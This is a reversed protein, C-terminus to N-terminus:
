KNLIFRAAGSRSFNCHDGPVTIMKSSFRKLKAMIKFKKSGEYFGYGDEVGVSIFYKSKKPAKYHRILSLPNNNEWDEQDTFFERGIQILDYVLNRDAGTRKVYKEIEKDDSYPGISTIAPCLLAVRSFLGPFKLSIEAANFGGMSQGILHRQGGNLGGIKRELLPMVYTRLFHLYGYRENNALIWRPGFSVTIIRPHYGWHRWLNHILRTGLFQTFWTKENGDLGHFFYIIDNSKKNKQPDYICFKFNIESATQSDCWVKSGNSSFDQESFAFVQINNLFFLLFLVISSRM